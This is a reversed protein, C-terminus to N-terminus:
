THCCGDMYGPALYPLAEGMDQAATVKERMEAMEENTMPELTRAIEVCSELVEMNLMGVIASAVPLSMTYRVLDPASVGGLGTLGDQGTTKMGLLGIGHKLAYPIIDETFSIGYTQSRGHGPNQPCMICDPQIKELAYLLVKSDAHGTVGINGITGSDKLDRLVELAGGNSVIRDVEENNGIAHFHLIDVYDTKLDAFSEDIQRKATEADRGDIKTALIIQKRYQPILFQGYRKLSERNRGYSHATDFYRVGLEIARHILREAADPENMLYRSGGGFGLITPMLGTLGLPRVPLIGTEEPSGTALGGAAATGALGVGAVSTALFKRRSISSGM